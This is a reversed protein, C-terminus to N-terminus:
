LIGVAFKCCILSANYSVLTSHIFHGVFFIFYSICRGVASAFFTFGISFDAIKLSDVDIKDRQRFGGSYRGPRMLVSGPYVNRRMYGM